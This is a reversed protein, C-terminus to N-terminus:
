QLLYLDYRGDETYKVDAWTIPSVIRASLTVYSDITVFTTEALEVSSVKMALAKRNNEFDAKDTNNQAVDIGFVNTTDKYIITRYLYGAM